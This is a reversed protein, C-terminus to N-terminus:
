KSGNSLPKRATLTSTTTKKETAAGVKAAITRSAVKPAATKSAATVGPKAALKSTTTTTTTASVRKIPSVRSKADTKKIETTKKLPLAKVVGVAAAAVAVTATAVAAAAVIPEGISSQDIVPELPEVLAIPAEASTNQEIQILETQSLTESEIRPEETSILPQDTQILKFSESQVFPEPQAVDDFKITEVETDDVPASPVFENAHVSLDSQNAEIESIFCVCNILIDVYKAFLTILSDYIGESIEPKAHSEIDMETIIEQQVIDFAPASSAEQVENLIATVETALEQVFNTIPGQEIHQFKELLEDNQSLKEPESTFEKVLEDMESYSQQQISLGIPQSVFDVLERHMENEQSADDDVDDPLPQVANLDVEQVTFPNNEDKYFSMNMPDQETFQQGGNTTPVIGDGGANFLIESELVEAALEQKEDGHMAEKLNMEQYSCQSSSSGPRQVPKEDDTNGNEALLDDGSLESAVLESPRTSIETFDNEAPLEIDTDNMPVANGKRPSQAVVDDELDFRNPLGNGFPSSTSTRQPSVPIFEKADPNLQSDMEELDEDNGLDSDHEAAVSSSREAREM